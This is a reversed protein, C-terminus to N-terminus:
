RATRAPVVEEREPWELDEGCSMCVQDAIPRVSGCKPCKRRPEAREWRYLLAAILGVIPLCFGILFWVFFSSGKIKAVIGTALGFFLILFLYPVGSVQGPVPGGAM